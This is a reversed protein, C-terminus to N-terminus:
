LQVSLEALILAKQLYTSSFCKRQQLSIKSSVQIGVGGQTASM